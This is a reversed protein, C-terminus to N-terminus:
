VARGVGRREARHRVVQRDAEEVDAARGGPPWPGFGEGAIGGRRGERHEAAVAVDGGEAAEAADLGDEAARLEAGAGRPDVVPREGEIPDYGPRCDATPLLCDASLIGSTGARLAPVLLDGM